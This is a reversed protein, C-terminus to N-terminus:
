GFMLLEPRLILLIGLILIIIGGILNSYRTYKTSIGTLHLTLMAAIFVFLDDLMFIIIYLVLLLYYQWAPIQSYSLINTYIAPLGASCVLEILNVAVAVIIIGIMALWFSPISTVFKINAFVKERLEGKVVQCGPRKKYFDWLHYSGSGIAVLGIFIRVWFIFGIFLFLNLWASLFLFYVLGSALIFTSGLIWMRKKDKMGILLSILFLLIWMACPNFGDIAAIIITLVPLSFNRLDIIGILPLSIIYNNQDKMEPEAILDTQFESLKMEPFFRDIIAAIVDPCKDALCNNIMAKIQQGSSEDSLYGVMHQNGVFVMPVGSTDLKLEQGIAQLVKMNDSHNYVEFTYLKLNSYQQTLDQSFVEEKSCHPCGQGYFLYINLTEQNQANVFSPLFLSVLVLFIIVYRLKFM